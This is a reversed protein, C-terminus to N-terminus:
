TDESKYTEKLEERNKVIKEMAEIAIENGRQFRKVAADRSCGLVDGLLVFDGYQLKKKLEKIKQGKTLVDEPKAM